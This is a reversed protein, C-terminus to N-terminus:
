YMSVNDGSFLCFKTHKWVTGVYKPFIFSYSINSKFVAFKLLM